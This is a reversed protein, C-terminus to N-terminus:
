PVTFWLEPREWTTVAPKASVTGIRRADMRRYFGDTPPHSVVRVGKLGIQRSQEIMHDVLLRGVGRGQAEDSVFLMDLEPPERILSYFGLLGADQDVARFVLREAFYGATVEVISIAEAYVGQYSSSAQCLCTLQQADKASARTITVQEM